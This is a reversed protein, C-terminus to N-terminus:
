VVTGEQVSRIRAHNLAPNLYPHRAGPSGMIPTTMGGVNETVKKHFEAYGGLGRGSPVQVSLLEAM